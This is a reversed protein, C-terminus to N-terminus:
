RRCSSRGARCLGFDGDAAHESIHSAGILQSVGIGCDADGAGDALCEAMLSAQLAIWLVVDGRVCLTSREYGTSGGLSSRSSSCGHLTLLLGCPALLRGLRHAAAIVLTLTRAGSALTLVPPLEPAWLRGLSVPRPSRVMVVDRGLDHGPQYFQGAPGHHEGFVLGM